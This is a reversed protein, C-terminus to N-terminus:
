IHSRLALYAFWEIEPPVNALTQFQALTLGIPSVLTLPAVTTTM